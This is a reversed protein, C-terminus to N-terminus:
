KQKRIYSIIDTSSPGVGGGSLYIAQGGRSKVLEAEAQVILRSRDKISKIFYNPCFTQLSSRCDMDDFVIVHDVSRIASLVDVRDRQNYIPRDGFRNKEQKQISSTSMALVILVDVQQRAAQILRVHFSHILDFSGSVLGIVQRRQRPTSGYLQCLIDLTTLKNNNIIPEEVWVLHKCIRQVSYNLLETEPWAFIKIVQGAAQQSCLSVAGNDTLVGDVPEIAALFERIHERTILPEFISETVHAVLHGSQAKQRALWRVLAADVIGVRGQVISISAQDIM